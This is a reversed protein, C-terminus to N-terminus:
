EVHGSRVYGRSRRKVSLEHLLKRAHDRNEIPYQRKGFGVRYTGGWRAVLAVGAGFMVRELKAEYWRGNDPNEWTWSM